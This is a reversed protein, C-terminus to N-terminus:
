GSPVFLVLLGLLCPGPSLTRSLVLCPQMTAIRMPDGSSIGRTVKFRQDGLASHTTLDRSKHNHSLEATRKIMEGRTGPNCSRATCVWCGRLQMIWLSNRRRALNPCNNITLHFIISDNFLSILWM